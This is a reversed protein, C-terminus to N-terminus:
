IHANHQSVAPILKAECSILQFATCVGVSSFIVTFSRWLRAPIQLANLAWLESSLPQGRTLLVAPSTFSEGGSFDSVSKKGSAYQCYSVSSDMRELWIVTFNWVSQKLFCFSVLRLSTQTVFATKWWITALPAKSSLFTFIHSRIIGSISNLCVLLILQIIKNLHVSSLLQKNAKWQKFAQSSQLPSM